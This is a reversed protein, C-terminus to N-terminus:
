NADALKLTLVEKPVLYHKYLVVCVCVCVCAM